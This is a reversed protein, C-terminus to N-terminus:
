RRWDVRVSYEDKGYAVSLEGHYASRLAEGIRQPLHIDTTTVVVGAADPAIEMIRALPHTDRERAAEHEVLRLIEDRHAAFFPGEIMVVGAPLRDRIRDCAPCLARAADAPAEGRQWHGRHYVAGCDACVTPEAFKRRAQYPDHRLDDFIRRHQHIVGAPPTRPSSPLTRRSM